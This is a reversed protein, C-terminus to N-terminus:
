CVLSAMDLSKEMQIAIPAVTLCAVDGFVGVATLLTTALMMAILSRSVGTKETIFDAIRKAAGTEILTGALVGATLIRVISPSVNKVGDIMFSTTDVLGAGGVIGGVLAGFMMAYAPSVKKLIAVLAVIVGLVAGFAGVTM